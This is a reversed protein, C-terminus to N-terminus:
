TTSWAHSKSKYGSLGSKLGRDITVMTVFICNKLIIIMHSETKEYAMWETYVSSAIVLNKMAYIQLCMPDQTILFFPCNCSFHMLILAHSTKLKEWLTPLRDLSTYIILSQTIHIYPKTQKEDM